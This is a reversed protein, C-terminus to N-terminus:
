HRVNALVHQMYKGENGKTSKMGTTDLTCQQGLTHSTGSKRLKGSTDFTHGKHPLAVSLRCGSWYTHYVQCCNLTLDCTVDCEDRVNKPQLIPEALGLPVM